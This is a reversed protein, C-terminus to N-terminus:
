TVTAGFTIVMRTVQDLVEVERQWEWTLTGGVKRAEKGYSALLQTGQRESLGMFLSHVLLSDLTTLESKLKM